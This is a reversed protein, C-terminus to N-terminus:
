TFLHSSFRSKIVQSGILKGAKHAVLGNESFVYDYDTVAAPFFIYIFHVGRGVDCKLLVLKSM